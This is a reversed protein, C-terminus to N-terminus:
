AFAKSAFAAAVLSTLLSSLLNVMHNDLLDVGSIWTHGGSPSTAGGAASVPASASSRGGKRSGKSSSSSSSSSDNGHHGKGNSGSNASGPPSSVVMGSAHDLGSYQLTAGLVSDVLSGALGCAAGVGVWRALAALVAPAPVRGMVWDVADPIVTVVGIFAGGALSAALGVASVGGNTGTPVLRAPNLIFRPKGTALTGLESAWTDGCCCAYHGVVAALAVTAFSTGAGLSANAWADSTSASTGFRVLWALSVATAAFSNSVVQITTRQGGPPALLLPFSMRPPPRRSRRCHSVLSPPRACPPSSPPPPYGPPLSDSM